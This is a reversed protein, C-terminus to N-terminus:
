EDEGDNKKGSPAVIVGLMAAVLPILPPTPPWNAILIYVGSGPIVMYQILTVVFYRFESNSPMTM